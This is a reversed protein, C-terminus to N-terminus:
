ALEGSTNPIARPKVEIEVDENVPLSTVFAVTDRLKMPVTVLVAATVPQILASLLAARRNDGEARFVPPALFARMAQGFPLRSRRWAMGLYILLGLGFILSGM